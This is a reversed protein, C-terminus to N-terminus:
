WQRGTAAGHSFRCRDGYSCTGRQQFNRCVQPRQEFQRRDGPRNNLGRDSQREQPLMPPSGEEDVAKSCLGWLVVSIRGKGNQDELPLANVAHQWRINVDRGFYFLSGNPVPFYILEQSKAHRFALERTAGFSMGISCNQDAARVPNFAASDHHFPKWDSGDRYWNFRTGQQGNGAIAFCERVRDLCAHFTKSGEPQKTLLHAGGHWSVWDARKEGQEQTERMEKVMQYYVNWDDATCFFDPIIIVDDHSVVKDLRLAPRSVMVRMAPRCFGATPAVPPTFVATRKAALRLEEVLLRSPGSVSILLQGSDGWHSLCREHAAQKWELDVDTAVLVLHGNGCPVHLADCPGAIEYHLEGPSGFCLSVACAPQTSSRARGQFVASDKGRQHWALSVVCDEDPMGFYTCIKKVMQACLPLKRPDEGGVLGVKEMEDLLAMYLTSDGEVCAFDPVLIVDDPKFETGYHEGEPGYLIRMAPRVLTSLPDFSVTNPGNLGTQGMAARQAPGIEAGEFYRPDDQLKALRQDDDIGPRPPPCLSRASPRSSQWADAFQAEQVASARGGLKSSSERRRRRLELWWRYLQVLVSLLVPALLVPRNVHALSWQTKAM